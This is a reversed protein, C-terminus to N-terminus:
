EKRRCTKIATKSAVFWNQRSLVGGRGARVVFPAADSSRRSATSTRIFM